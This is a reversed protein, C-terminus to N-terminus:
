ARWALLVGLARRDREAALFAGLSLALFLSEAYAMAFAVGFPVIALLVGAMAARRGGLFPRGLHYLLVLAVAFAV